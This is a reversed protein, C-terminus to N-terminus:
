ENLKDRLQKIARHVLVRINGEQKGTIESIEAYDLEEVLKLVLVEQLNDPLKAIQKIVEQYELRTDLKDPAAVLDETLRARYGSEKKEKRYYSVLKKHAVSFLWTSFKANSRPQYRKLSQYAGLFTESLVDKATERDGIRFYLFRFIRDSFIDFIRGFLDSEGQQIRKILVQVDTESFQTM